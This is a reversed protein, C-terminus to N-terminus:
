AFILDILEVEGGISMLICLISSCVGEGSQKGTHLVALTVKLVLHPPPPPSVTTEM